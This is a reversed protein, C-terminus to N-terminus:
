KNCYSPKSTKTVKKNNEAKNKHFVLQKKGPKPSTFSFEGSM